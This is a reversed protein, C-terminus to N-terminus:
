QTPALRGRAAAVMAPDADVVTLRLAPEAKLMAEAM